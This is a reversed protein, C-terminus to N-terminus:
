RASVGGPRCAPIATNSKAHAGAPVPGLDSEQGSALDLLHLAPHVLGPDLDPTSWTLVAVPGGDPRQVADVVHRDGFSAPVDIRGTRLDLLRLRAPGRPKGDAAMIAVLAPDALPRYNQVGAPWRTLVEVARGARGIRHLQSAHDSLFFISESDAAWRPSSLHAPPIDLRWPAVDGDVATVWLESVTHEGVRGMPTVVYVVWRGDPSLVTSSPVRGDVVLEATVRSSM